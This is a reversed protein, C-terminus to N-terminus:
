YGAERRPFLTLPFLLPFLTMYPGGRMPPFLTMYPGGRMALAFNSNPTSLLADMYGAKPQLMEHKQGQHFGRAGLRM